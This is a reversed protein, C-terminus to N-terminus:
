WMMNSRVAVVRMMRRNLKKAYKLFVLGMLQLRAGFKRQGAMKKKQSLQKLKPRDHGAISTQGPNCCKALDNRNM